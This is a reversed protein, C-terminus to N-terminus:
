RLGAKILAQATKAQGAETLPTMPL